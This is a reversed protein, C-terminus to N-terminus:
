AFLPLTDELFNWALHVLHHQPRTQPRPQKGKTRQTSTILINRFQLNEISGYYYVPTDAMKENLKFPCWWLVYFWKVRNILFKNFASVWIWAGWNALDSFGFQRANKPFRTLDELTSYTPYFHCTECFLFQICKSLLTQFMKGQFVKM